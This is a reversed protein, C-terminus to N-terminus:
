AGAPGPLAQTRSRASGATEDNAKVAIAKTTSHGVDRPSAMFNFSLTATTVPAPAPMPLAMARSNTFSPALTAMQSTCTNNSPTSVCNPPRGSRSSAETRSITGGREGPPPALTCRAAIRPIRPAHRDPRDVSGYAGRHCATRRHCTRSPPGGAPPPTRPSFTSSSRIRPCSRSWTEPTSHRRIM